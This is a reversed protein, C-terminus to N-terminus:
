EEENYRCPVYNTFYFKTDRTLFENANLEKGNFIQSYGEVSFTESNEFFFVQYQEEHKSYRFSIRNGKTTEGFITGTKILTDFLTTDPLKGKFWQTNLELLLNYKEKDEIKLERLRYELYMPILNNLKWYIIKGSFKRYIIEALRYVLYLYILISLGIVMFETITGTNIVIDKQM